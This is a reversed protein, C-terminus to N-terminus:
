LLLPSLLRSLPEGPSVQFLIQARQSTVLHLLHLQPPEPSVEYIIYM